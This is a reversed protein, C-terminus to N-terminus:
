AARAFNAHISIAKSVYAAHAEEATEYLGLYIFKGGLKLSAQFKGCKHITVGKLPVNGNHKKRNAANNSKTALRLNSIRNDDRVNNIHDIEFGEAIKGHVSEWIIRHAAFSNKGACVRLYGTNDRWGLSASGGAAYVKGAEVDVILSRGNVTTEITKM